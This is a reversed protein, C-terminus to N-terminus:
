NDTWSERGTTIVGVMISYLRSVEEVLLLIVIFYGTKIVLLKCTCTCVYM